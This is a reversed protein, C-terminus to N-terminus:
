FLSIACLEVWVWRVMKYLIYIFFRSTTYLLDLQFINQCRRPQGPDFGATFFNQAIRVLNPSSWENWPLRSCTRSKALSDCNPHNSLAILSSNPRFLFGWDITAFVNDIEFYNRFICYLPLPINAKFVPNYDFAWFCGRNVLIAGTRPVWFGAM